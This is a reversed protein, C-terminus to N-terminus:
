DQFLEKQFMSIEKISKGYIKRANGCMWCSCVKPTNILKGLMQNSLGGGWYTKRKNKLRIRHHIRIARKSM